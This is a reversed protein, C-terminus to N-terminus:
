METPEKLEKHQLLYYELNLKLLYGWARARDKGTLGDRYKHYRSRIGPVQNVLVSYIDDGLKM